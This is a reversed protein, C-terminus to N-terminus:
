VNAKDYALMFFIIALILGSILYFTDKLGRPFGLYPLIAVWLSLLVGFWNKWKKSM